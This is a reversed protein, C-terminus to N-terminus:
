QWINQTRQVIYMCVVFISSILSTQGDVFNLNFLASRIEIFNVICTIGSSATEFEYCIFAMEAVVSIFYAFNVM